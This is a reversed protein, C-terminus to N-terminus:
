RFADSWDRGAQGRAAALDAKLQETDVLGAWSGAASLAAASDEDTIPDGPKKTGFRGPEATPDTPAPVPLPELRAVDRGAVRLLLPRGSARVAEALRRVEAADTVDTVEVAERTKAM